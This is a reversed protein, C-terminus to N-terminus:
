DQPRPGIEEMDDTHDKEEQKAKEDPLTEGVVKRYLWRSGMSAGMGAVLAGPGMTGTIMYAALTGATGTSSTVFGCGAEAVVHKVAGTNDIKGDRVAKFAHLTGVGGDVVAGAVGARGCMAALEKMPGSQVATKAVVIAKHGNRSHAATRTVGVAKGGVKLVENLVRAKLNM